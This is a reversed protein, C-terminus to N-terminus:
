IRPAPPARSDFPAVARAPPAAYAGYGGSARDIRADAVPFDASGAAILPLNGLSKCIPCDLGATDSRSDGDGRDQQLAVLGAGGPTCLTLFRPLRPGDAGASGATGATAPLACLMTVALIKALYLAAVALAVQIRSARVAKLGSVSGCPQM